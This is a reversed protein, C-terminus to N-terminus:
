LRQRIGREEKEVSCEEIAAGWDLPAGSPDSLKYGRRRMERLAAGFEADHIEVQGLVSAREEFPALMAVGGDWRAARALDIARAGRADREGPDAGAHLLAKLAALAAESTSDFDSEEHTGACLLHMASRGDEDAFRLSAGWRLLIPIAECSEESEMRCASMLVSGRLENGDGDQADIGLGKSSWELWLAEAEPMSLMGGQLLSFLMAGSEKGAAAVEQRTMAKALALACDLSGERVAMGIATKEWGAWPEGVKWARLGAALASDVLDPSRASLVATWMRERIELESPSDEGKRGAWGASFMKQCASVRLQRKDRSGAHRISWLAASLMRRSEATPVDLSEVNGEMGVSEITATFEGDIQNVDRPSLAQEEENERM